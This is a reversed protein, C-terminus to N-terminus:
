KALLNVIADAFEEGGFRIVGGVEVAGHPVGGEGRPLAEAGDEGDGGGLSASRSWVKGEVGTTGDFEDVAKAQDVVIEGRDVVVVEAPAAGSAVLDESLCEGDESAISKKGECEFGEGLGRDVGDAGALGDANEGLGRARVSEDASFHEIDLAFANRAVHGKELGDVGPLGTGEETSAAFDSGNEGTGVGLSLRIEFVEAFFDAEGKM